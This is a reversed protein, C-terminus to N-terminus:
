CRDKRNLIEKFEEKLEEFWKENYHFLSPYLFQKNVYWDVTDIDYGWMKLKEISDLFKELYGNFENEYIQLEGDLYKKLM